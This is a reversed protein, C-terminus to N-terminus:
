PEEPAPLRAPVPPQPPLWRGEGDTTVLSRHVEQEEREFILEIWDLPRGTGAARQIADVMRPTLAAIAGPEAVLRASPEFSVILGRGDPALRREGGGKARSARVKTEPALWERAAWSARLDKALAVDEALPGLAQQAVVFMVAFALLMITLIAVSAKRM